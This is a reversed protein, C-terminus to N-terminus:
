SLAPLSSRFKWTGVGTLGLALISSAFVARKAAKRFRKPKHHSIPAPELHVPETSSNSDSNM